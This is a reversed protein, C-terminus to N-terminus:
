GGVKPCDGAFRVLARAPRARANKWVGHCEEVRVRLTNFETVHNFYVYARLVDATVAGGARKCGCGQGNPKIDRYIPAFQPWAPLTPWSLHDGVSDRRVRLIADLKDILLKM